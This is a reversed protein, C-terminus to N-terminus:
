DTLERGRAPLQERVAVDQGSPRGPVGTARHPWTRAADCRRESSSMSHPSRRGAPQRSHRHVPRGAGTKQVGRCRPLSLATRKELQSRPRLRAKPGCAAQERTHKSHGAAPETKTNTTHGNLSHSPRVIKPDSFAPAMAPDASKWRVDRAVCWLVLCTLLLHKCSRDLSVKKCEKIVRKSRTCYVAHTIAPHLPGWLGGSM